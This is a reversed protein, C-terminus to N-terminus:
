DAFSKSQRLDQPTHACPPHSQPVVATREALIRRCVFRERFTAHKPLIDSPTEGHRNTANPDARANVLMRMFPINGHEAAVHLASHSARSEQLMAQCTLLLKTAEALGWQVALGLPTMGKPRCEAVMSARFRLLLATAAASGHFVCAHLPTDGLKNRCNPDAASRLLLQMTRLDHIRCAINLPPDDTLNNINAEARVLAKTIDHEGLSVAVQLPQSHIEQEKDMRMNPDAFSELMSKVTRLNGQKIARKFDVEGGQLFDPVVMQVDINGHNAILTSLNNWPQKNDAIENGLIFQTRYLPTGELEHLYKRFAELVSGDDATPRCADAACSCVLEGNIKRFHLMGRQTEHKRLVQKAELRFAQLSKQHLTHATRCHEHTNDDGSINKGATSQDPHQM